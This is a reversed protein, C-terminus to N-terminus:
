KTNKNIRDKCDISIYEIAMTDEIIDILEELRKKDENMKSKNVV